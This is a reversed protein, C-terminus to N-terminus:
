KKMWLKIERERRAVLVKDVEGNDYKWRRMQEPVSQFNGANLKKLLTSTAFAGNGINFTLSVLANFQNQTLEVKVNSLVCKAAYQTDQKALDWVEQKTLGKAYRVPVGNIIIKGSSLESRLLKHGIGITPVGKSDPYMKERYGEEFELHEFFESDVQTVKM